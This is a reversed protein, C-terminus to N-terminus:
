NNPTVHLKEKNRNRKSLKTSKTPPPSNDIPGLGDLKQLYWGTKIAM